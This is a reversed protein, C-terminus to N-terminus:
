AEQKGQEFLAKFKASLTCLKGYLDFTIVTDPAVTMYSAMMKVLIWSDIFAWKIAAAIFIALIFAVFVNWGLINFIGGIMAFALLTVAVFIGCVLLTTIAADKLLKKWNQAYIVVGDAASKFASEDKKYFTYGLCCEDIYGLSISIFLKGIQMIIGMGPINGLMNGAKDMVGQLQRVAGSVLKDIAFYVNATAFRKAVMKKATAIQNTPVRGGTVAATIIAVHGAKVIYGFYHNIVFRVIGTAAMWLIFTITSGGSGFLLGIGMLVVFLIVSALVTALSLGLKLWNFVMTKGYIQRATM